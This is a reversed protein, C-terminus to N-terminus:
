TAMLACLSRSRNDFGCTEEERGIRARQLLDSTPPEELAIQTM